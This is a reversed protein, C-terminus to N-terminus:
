RKLVFTEIAKAVGDQNNTDTMYDAAKKIAEQGNKMAVGLGAEQIMKMDNLSDGVAMVEDMTFGLERCVRKLASAKSVGKPNIEVNIPLSNTLELGEYHSVEKIFSELSAEDLTHGGLKLWEHAHFDEPRENFYVKETTIMWTKLEKRLALRYINEVLDPELLHREVLQKEMTWIEGGNVTVLYSKLGLTEAYPYCTPLARGTSLVVHVGLDLAEGIVEKTYASIEEATNLLTGDMDLAILKIDSM